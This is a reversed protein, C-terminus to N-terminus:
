SGKQDREWLGTVRLHTFCYYVDNSEVFLHKLEVLGFSSVSRLADLRNCWRCDLSLSAGHALKLENRGEQAEKLGQAMM